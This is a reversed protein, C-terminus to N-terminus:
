NQFYNKETCAGMSMIVKLGYYQTKALYLYKPFNHYHYEQCHYDGDVTQIKVQASEKQRLTITTNTIEPWPFGVM